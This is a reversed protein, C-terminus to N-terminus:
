PSVILPHDPHGHGFSVYPTIYSPAVQWHDLDFSIESSESQHSSFYLTAFHGSPLRTANIGTLTFRVKSDDDGLHAAFANLNVAM